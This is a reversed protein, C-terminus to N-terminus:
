SVLFGRGTLHLLTKIVEQMSSLVPGNFAVWQRNIGVHTVQFAEGLPSVTGLPSRHGHRSQISLDIGDHCLAVNVCIGASLSVCLPFGEATTQLVQM